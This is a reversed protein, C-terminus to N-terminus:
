QCGKELWRRRMFEATSSTEAKLVSSKWVRRPRICQDKNPKNNQSYWRAETVKGAEIKRFHEHGCHPCEVVHEGAISYDLLAVFKKSCEHCDLETREEGRHTLRDTPEGPPASPKASDSDSPPAASGAPSSTSPSASNPSAPPTTM